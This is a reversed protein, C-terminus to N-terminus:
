CCSPKAKSAPECCASKGAEPADPVTSCCAAEPQEAAEVEKIEIGCCDEQGKTSFSVVLKKLLNAM